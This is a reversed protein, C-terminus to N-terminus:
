GSLNGAMDCGQLQFIFDSSTVPFAVVSYPSYSINNYCDLLEVAAECPM